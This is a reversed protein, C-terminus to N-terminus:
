DRKIKDYFLSAGEIIKDFIQPKYGIYPMSASINFMNMPKGKINAYNICADHIVMNEAYATHIHGYFDVGYCCNYNFSWIPYHCLSLRIFPTPSPISLRIKNEPTIDKTEITRESMQKISQLCSIVEPDKLIAKDHNGIILQKKGHLSGLFKAIDGSGLDGLIIVTDDPSVASNYNDVIYSNYDDITKLSLMEEWVKFTSQTKEQWIDIDQKLFDLNDFDSFHLDSIYKIM